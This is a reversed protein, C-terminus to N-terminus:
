YGKRYAWHWYDGTYGRHSFSRPYYHKAGFWGWKYSKVPFGYSYRPVHALPTHPAKRHYSYSKALAGNTHTNVPTTPHRASATQFVTAVIAIIATFLCAPKTVRTQMRAERSGNEELSEFDTRASGMDRRFSSRYRDTYGESIIRSTRAAM